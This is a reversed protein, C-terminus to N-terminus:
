AAAKDKRLLLVLGVVALVVGVVILLLPVIMGYLNLQGKADKADKVADEISSAAAKYELDFVPLLPLPDPL